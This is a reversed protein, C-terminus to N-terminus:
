QIPQGPVVPGGPPTVVVAVDRRWVAGNDFQITMGDPSYIAGENWNAVWIHGPRDVWARSSQGVENVLNLDWGNQTVFAPAFGATCSAVCRFQGSVNLVQGDWTAAVPAPNVIQVQPPAAVDYLPRPYAYTDAVYTGGVTRDYPPRQYRDATVRRQPERAVAGNHAVPRTAQRTTRATTNPQAPAAQQVIVHDRSNDQATQANAVSPGALVACGLAISSAYVKM